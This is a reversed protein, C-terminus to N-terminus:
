PPPDPDSCAIPKGTANPHAATATARPAPAFLDIGVGRSDSPHDRNPGSVGGVSADPTLRAGRCRDAALVRARNNSLLPNSRDTHELLESIVLRKSPFFALFRHLWAALVAGPTEADLTQAAECIANVEDIDLAELLM